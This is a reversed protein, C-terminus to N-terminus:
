HAIVYLRTIAWGILTCCQYYVVLLIKSFYSVFHEIGHSICSNVRVTAWQWTLRLTAILFLKLQTVTCRAKCHGAWLSKCKVIAHLITLEVVWAVTNLNCDNLSQLTVHSNILHACGSQRIIQLFYCFKNLHGCVPVVYQLLPWNQRKTWFTYNIVLWFVTIRAITFLVEVPHSDSVLAVRQAVAIHLWQRQSSTM